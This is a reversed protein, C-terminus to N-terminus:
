KPVLSENGNVNIYSVRESFSNKFQEVKGMQLGLALWKDVQIGKEIMKGQM